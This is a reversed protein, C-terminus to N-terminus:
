IKYIYWRRRTLNCSEESSLPVKKIRQADIHPIQCDRLSRSPPEARLRQHQFRVYEATKHDLQWTRQATGIEVSFLWTGFQMQIQVLTNLAAKGTIAETSEPTVKITHAARAEGTFTTTPLTTVDLVATGNSTAISTTIASIEQENMAGIYGKVTDGACTSGIEIALKM